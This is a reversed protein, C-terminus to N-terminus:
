IILSKFSLRGRHHKLLQASCVGCFGVIFGAIISIYFSLSEPRDEDNKDAGINGGGNPKAEPDADEGPSCPVKTFSSTGSPIEGSLNNFSLNLYSLFTLSSLSQPIPGFLQNRSLDLSELSRLNGISEPIKGTLPNISLNM